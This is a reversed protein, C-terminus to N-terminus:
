HDQLAPGELGGALHVLAYVQLQYSKPLRSKQERCLPVKRDLHASKPASCWFRRVFSLRTGQQRLSFAVGRPGGRSGTYQPAISGILRASKSASARSRM